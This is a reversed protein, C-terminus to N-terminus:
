RVIAQGIQRNAASSRGLYVATSGAPTEWRDADTDWAHQVVGIRLVPGEDRTTRAYSAPVPGAEIIQVTSQTM